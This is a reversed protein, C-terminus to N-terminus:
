EKVSNITFKDEGASTDANKYYGFHLYYINGGVLRSSTYEKTSSGTINIFRGSTTNQGPATTSKNVIAYGYDANSQSSITANVGLYYSGSLGSLDIKIYSNATSNDIGTNNSVYKGDTSEFYYTGNNTLSGIASEVNTNKHIIYYQKGNAVMANELGEETSYDAVSYTQSNPTLSGVENTVENRMEIQKINFKANELVKTNDKSDVKNITLIQDEAAFTVIVKKNEQVNTFYNSPIKYTGDSNTVFNITEDNITIKSINYNEDPVILIEKENSKGYNIVEFPKEDEGTITGGKKGNIELIDTTVNFKKITNQVNIETVESVTNPVGMILTPYRSKRYAWVDDVNLTDYFDKSRMQESSVANGKLIINDGILEISDLYYSNEVINRDPDSGLIGGVGYPSNLIVAQVNGINYCNSISGSSTYGTIGGAVINGSTVDGENYCNTISSNMLYGIIGGTYNGKSM